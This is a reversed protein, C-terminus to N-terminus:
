KRCRLASLVHPGHISIPCRALAVVPLLAWTLRPRIYLAVDIILACDGTIVALLLSGSSSWSTSKHHVPYWYCRWHCWQRGEDSRVRPSSQTPSFVQFDGKTTQINTQKEQRDCAMRETAYWESSEVGVEIWGDGCEREGVGVRGREVVVRVGGGM